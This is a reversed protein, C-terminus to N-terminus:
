TTVNFELIDYYTRYDQNIRKIEDKTKAFEASDRTHFVGIVTEFENNQDIAIVVYVKM